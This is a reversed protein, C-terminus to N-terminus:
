CLPSRPVPPRDRHTHHGHHHAGQPRAASLLAREAEPTRADEKARLLPRPNPPVATRQAGRPPRNASAAISLGRLSHNAPAAFFSLDKRFHGAPAM